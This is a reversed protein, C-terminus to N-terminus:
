AFYIGGYGDPSPYGTERMGLRAPPGACVNSVLIKVKCHSHRLGLRAKAVYRGVDKWDKNHDSKEACM